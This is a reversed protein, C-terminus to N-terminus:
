KLLSYQPLFDLLLSLFLSSVALGSTLARPVGLIRRDLIRTKWFLFGLSAMAFSLGIGCQSSLSVRPAESRTCREETWVFDALWGRDQRWLLRQCPRIEGTSVQWLIAEQTLLSLLFLCVFFSCNTLAWLTLTLNANLSGKLEDMFSFYLPFHLSSVKRQM